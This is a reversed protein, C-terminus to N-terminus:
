PSPAPDTRRPPPPATPAAPAARPGAAARPREVLDDALLMQEARALRQPHQDLRVPERRQDEPPRGARALGRDGPEDRARGLLRELAERRHGRAHLVDALDRLPGAAPQALVALARDEEEVLHVAEAARLLVHQEREDLFPRSTSTPAVVSFGNKESVPGSSDRLVSNRSSGSSSSSKLSSTSRASVSRSRPRPSSGAVIASSARLCRTSRLSPSARWM